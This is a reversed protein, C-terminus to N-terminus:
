CPRQGTYLADYARATQRIDLRDPLGPRPSPLTQRRLQALLQALAQPNEPPLCWTGPWGTIEQSAGVKTVVTPIGCAQAELPALPLGEQRSPQCYLQLQRYFSRTDEVHGLFHVRRTLALEQTLKRLATSQSGDGALALHMDEPLAALARILLDQGKVTELRGACGIIWADAPLKFAREPSAPAPCFYQRDIGNDIRLCIREPWYRRLEAEVQGGVAVHTPQCLRLLRKQLRLASPQQLHWADHESHIHAMRPGLQLALATYFLPGIHHSHVAQPRLQGILKRLRYVCRPSRGAPKDLFHLPIDLTGLLPWAALAEARRGELSILHHSYASHRALGLALMELGGPRLHQLVQVVTPKM